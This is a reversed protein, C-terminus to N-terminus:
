INNYWHRPKPANNELNKPIEYYNTTQLSQKSNTDYFIKIFDEAVPDTVFNIIVSDTTTYDIGFKLKEGNKFVEM